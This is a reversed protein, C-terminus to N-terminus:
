RDGSQSTGSVYNWRGNKQAFHLVHFITRSSDIWRISADAQDANVVLARLSLIVAQRGSEREAISGGSRFVLANTDTIVRLPIGAFRAMFDSPLPSCTTGYSLCYVLNTRWGQKPSTHLFDRFVAEAPDYNSALLVENTSAHASIGLIVLVIALITRMTNELWCRGADRLAPVAPGKEHIQSQAPCFPKDLVLQTANPARSTGLRLV